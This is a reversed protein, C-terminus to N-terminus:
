KEQAAFVEAVSQCLRGMGPRWLGIGINCHGAGVPIAVLVDLM